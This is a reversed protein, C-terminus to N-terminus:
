IDIGEASGGILAVECDNIQVMCHNARANPMETNVHEWRMKEDLWYM